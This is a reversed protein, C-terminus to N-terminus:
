GVCIHLSKSFDSFWNFVRREQFVTEKLPRKGWWNNERWDLLDRKLNHLAGEEFVVWWKRELCQPKVFHSKRVGLFFATRSTFSWELQSVNTNKPHKPLKFGVIEAHKSAARLWTSGAWSSKRVFLCNLRSLAVQLIKKRTKWITARLPFRLRLYSERERLSAPPFSPWCIRPQIALRHLHSLFFSYGSSDHKDFQVFSDHSVYLLFSNNYVRASSNVHWFHIPWM